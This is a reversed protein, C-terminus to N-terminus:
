LKVKKLRNRSGDREKRKRRHKVVGKIAAATIGVAAGAAIVVPIM